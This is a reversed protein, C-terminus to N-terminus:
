KTFDFGEQPINQRWRWTQLQLWALLIAHAQMNRQNVRQEKFHLCYMTGPCVIYHASFNLVSVYVGCVTFCVYLFGFCVIPMQQWNTRLSSPSKSTHRTGAELLQFESHDRPWTVTFHPDFPIYHIIGLLILVRNCITHVKISVSQIYMVQIICLKLRLDKINSTLPQNCHSPSKYNFDASLTEAQFVTPLTATWKLESSPAHQETFSSSALSNIQSTGM